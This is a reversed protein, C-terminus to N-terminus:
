RLVKKTEGDNNRWGAGAAKAGQLLRSAKVRQRHGREVVRRSRDPWRARKLERRRLYPQHLRKESPGNM